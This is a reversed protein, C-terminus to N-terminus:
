CGFGFCQSVIQQGEFSIRLCAGTPIGWFTCIDLCAQVVTGDPINFPIPICVSGLGLPLNLCVQNNSTVISICAANLSLPRVAPSIETIARLDTEQHPRKAVELVRSIAEDDFSNYAPM